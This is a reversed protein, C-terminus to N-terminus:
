RDSGRGKLRWVLEDSECIREEMTVRIGEPSGERIRLRYRISPASSKNTKLKQRHTRSLASYEAKSDVNFEEITDIRFSDQELSAVDDHEVANV